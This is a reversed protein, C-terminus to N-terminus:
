VFRVCLACGHLSFPPFVPVARVRLDCVCRSSVARASCFVCSYFVTCCFSFCPLCFLPACLALPVVCMCSTQCVYLVCLQLVFRVSMSCACLTFPVLAALRASAECLLSIRVLVPACVRRVSRSCCACGHRAFPPCVCLTRVCIVCACLWGRARASCLTSLVGVCLRSHMGFFVFCSFLHSLLAYLHLPSRVWPLVCVSLACYLLLFLM